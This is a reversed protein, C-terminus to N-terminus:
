TKKESTNQFSLIKNENDRKEIEQQLKLNIIAEEQNKLDLERNANKAQLVKIEKEKQLTQYKVELENLEKSKQLKSISDKIMIEKEFYSYSSKYDNQTIYAEKLNNYIIVQKDLFGLEESISLAEDYSKKADRYLKKDQYVLGINTLVDILARHFETEKAISYAKNYYEIAKDYEKMLHYLAGINQLVSGKLRSAKKNKFFDFSKKLFAMSVEYNDLSAYANALNNYVMFTFRPKEKYELCTKLLKISNDYNGLKIDMIALNHLKVYYQRKTKLKKVIELGKLHWKKSEEFLGKHGYSLAIINYASSKVKTSISDNRKGIIQLTKNGYFLASDALNRQNFYVGINICAQLKIKRYKTEKLIKHSITYAAKGKKGGIDQYAQDIIQKQTAYKKSELPPLTPTKKENVQANVGVSHFFILILFINQLFRLM